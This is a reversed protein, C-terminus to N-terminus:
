ARLFAGQDLLHHLRHARPGEVQGPLEAQLLERREDAPCCQEDADVRRRHMDCGRHARGRHCKEARRAFDLPTRPLHGVLYQHRRMRAAGAAVVTAAAAVAAFADLAYRHRADEFRYVSQRMGASRRRTTCVSLEVPQPPWSIRIRVSASPMSERPCSTISSVACLALM